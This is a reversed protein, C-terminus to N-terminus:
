FRLNGNSILVINAQYNTLYLAGWVSQFWTRLHEMAYRTKTALHDAILRGQEEDFGSPANSWRTMVDARPIDHASCIRTLLNCISRHPTAPHTWAAKQCARSCYVLRQCRGCRKFPRVDAYTNSCDPAGCILSEKLHYLAKIMRRWPTDIRDSPNARRFLEFKEDPFPFLQLIMEGLNQLYGAIPKVKFEMGPQRRIQNCLGTALHCTTLLGHARPQIFERQQVEDSWVVIISNLLRFAAAILTFASDARNPNASFIRAAHTVALAIGASMVGHSAIVHPLALPTTYYIFIAIFRLITDTHAGELKVFGWSVLARTTHEPEYPMIQRLSTPWTKRKTIKDVRLESPVVATGLTETLPSLLMDLVFLFPNTNPSHKHDSLAARAALHMGGARDPTSCTCEWQLMQHRKLTTRPYTLWKMTHTMFEQTYQHPYPSDSDLAQWFVLCSVLNGLFEVVCVFNRDPNDLAQMIYFLSRRYGTILSPDARRM